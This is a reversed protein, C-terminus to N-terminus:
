GEKLVELPNGSNSLGSLGKTIDARRFRFVFKKLYIDDRKIIVFVPVGYDVRTIEIHYDIGINNDTTNYKRKLEDLYDRIEQEPLAQGVNMRLFHLDAKLELKEKCFQNIEGHLINKLKTYYISNEINRPLSPQVDVFLENLQAIQNTEESIKIKMIVERKEALFSKQLKSM